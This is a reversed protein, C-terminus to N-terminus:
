EAAPSRGPEPSADGVDPEPEKIRWISRMLGPAAVFMMALASIIVLLQLPIGSEIVMSKAGTNLAGFLLAVLVVGSPRLGGILALALAVFGIGFSPSLRGVPGLAVFAAGMGVLGGSLAMALIVVGGSRMGAGRAATRSFGVTRLEFGLTTRFLLFSVVAAMVLAVAFGWDLRIAPLDFVLPVDAIPTLSTSLAPSLLAFVVIEPAIANLMLTTIVEHAGTRAKLFGAVFGYAAGSLTGALLAAVLIAFPPLYGQLVVAAITAGLGGILYQGDAGLNFLGARFSIALGLTTFILPTASVLTETVPRIAAAIDAPNGSQIAAVVRGPDGIAGSLMAGYGRLTAGIAGGIAAVPDTGIERLHEFDTLVVVVAGLLFATIIALGPVLAGRLIAGLRTV